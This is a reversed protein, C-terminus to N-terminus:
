DVHGDQKGESSITAGTLIQAIFDPVKQEVVEEYIRGTEDTKIQRITITVYECNFELKDM